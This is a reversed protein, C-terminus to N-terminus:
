IVIIDNIQKQMRMILKTIFFFNLMIFDVIFDILHQM